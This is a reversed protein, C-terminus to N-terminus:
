TVSWQAARSWLIWDDCLAEEAAALLMAVGTPWDVARYRFPEPALRLLGLATSLKLRSLAVRPAGVAYGQCLATAVLAAREVSGRGLTVTRWLHALFNGLDSAPEGQRANDLDILTAGDKDILVQDAYFDGHLTHHPEPADGAHAAITVALRYARPALAPCIAAVAEAAATAEERPGSSAGPLGDPPQQHLEALAMGTLRLAAADFTSGWLLTDLPEGQQWPFILAHHKPSCGLPTAVRLPGSSRLAMAAAHAPAYDDACYLKLVAEGGSAGALCGVWRREPLHRLQILTTAAMDPRAPCAAALLNARLGPDALAALASLQHDHPWCYVAIDLDEFTLGGVGLPSAEAHLQRAHRLKPRLSPAYARAYITTAASATEVYYKVLCSTHPKYRTYTPRVAGIVADPLAARLTVAFADSDLLFALSTIARDRAALAADAPSLM